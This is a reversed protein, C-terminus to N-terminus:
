GSSLSGMVFETGGIVLSFIGKQHTDALSLKLIEPNPNKALDYIRKLFELKSMNINKFQYFASPM